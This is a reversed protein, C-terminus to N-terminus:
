CWSRSNGRCRGVRRATWSLAAHLRSGTGRREATCRPCRAGGSCRGVRLRGGQEPGRALRATGGGTGRASQVQHAAGARHGMDWGRADTHMQPEMKKSEAAPVGGRGCDNGVVPLVGHVLVGGDGVRWLSPRGRIVAALVRHVMLCTADPCAAGRGLLVTRCAAFCSLSLASSSHICASARLHAHTRCPGDCRVGCLRLRPAASIGSGM